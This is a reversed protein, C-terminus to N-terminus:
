RRGNSEGPSTKKLIGWLTDTQGSKELDRMYQTRTNKSVTTNFLGQGGPKRNLAWYIHNSLDYRQLGKIQCSLFALEACKALTRNSFYTLHAISFYFEEFEKITYLSLLADNINPVEIVIIGNTTLRKSLGNLFSVPDALHELVHFAVIIDFEQESPVDELMHYVPINSIAAFWNRSAEDMEVGVVRNVSPEIKKLFAGSGSGVELIKSKTSIYSNLRAIRLEAESTDSNFREKPTPDSYVDRYEHTYFKNLRENSPQPWLYVLQCSECKHVNV